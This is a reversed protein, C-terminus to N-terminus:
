CGAPAAREVRDVFLDLVSGAFDLPVGGELVMERAREEDEARVVVEGSGWFSFRVRWQPLSGGPGRSAPERVAFAEARPM